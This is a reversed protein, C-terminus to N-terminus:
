AVGIMAIAVVAVGVAVLQGLSLREGLVMRALLVTGIPYLASLVAVISLLGRQAAAVYLGNALMDVAGAGAAFRRAPKAPLISGTRAAVAVAVPISVARAAALPWMGAAEDTQALCIFFLGFGFGAVVAPLLAYRDIPGSPGSGASVWGIAVLGCLVGVMALPKPREGMMLGVVVPVVAGLVATIPAIVGMPGRSLATYLGLIGLMGFVGGVAGWVLDSGRVVTVPVILVLPVLVGISVLQALATVRLPTARRAAFGGMFDGIGFLAASGLAFFETM